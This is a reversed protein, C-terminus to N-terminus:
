MRPSAEFETSKNKAAFSSSLYDKMISLTDGKGLEEMRKRQGPGFLAAYYEGKDLSSLRLPGDMAQLYIANAASLYRLLPELDNVGADDPLTPPPFPAPKQTILYDRSLAPIVYGDIYGSAFKGDYYYLGDRLTASARSRERWEIDFDQRLKHDPNKQLKEELSLKSAPYGAASPCSTKSLNNIMSPDFTVRVHECIKRMLPEPRVRLEEFSVIATKKRHSKSLTKITNGINLYGPNDIPTVENKIFAPTYYYSLFGKDVLTGDFNIAEISHGQGQHIAMRNFNSRVQEHPHRLIFLLSSATDFLMEQLEKNWLHYSMSKVILCVPKNHQPHDELVHQYRNLILESAKEASAELPIDPEHIQGDIDPSQTLAREFITSGSQPPAILTILRLKKQQVLTRLKFEASDKALGMKNM